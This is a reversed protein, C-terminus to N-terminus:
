KNEAMWIDWMYISWCRRWAFASYSVSSNKRVIKRIRQNTSETAKFELWVNPYSVSKMPCIWKGFLLKDGRSVDFVTSLRITQESFVVKCGIELHCPSCIYVITGWAVFCHWVKSSFFLSIYISEVSSNRILCVCVCVCIRNNINTKYVTHWTTDSWVSLLSQKRYLRGRIVGVLFFLSIFEHTADRSHLIPM